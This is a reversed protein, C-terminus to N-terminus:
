GKQRAAAPGAPVAGSEEPERYWRALAGVIAWLFVFGGLVWMFLGGLELDSKPDIGWGDRILALVGLEDEPHQYAPYYGLPAFTLLIGLVTNALGATFLYFVAGPGTLRRMPTPALVPWWFITGTVLFSLHEAIHVTENALTLNYLVPLHWIWLTGIGLFWAVGSRGLLAEARRPAPRALLRATWEAPLGLLWLPPAALWLILHQVMHASFLYDDGLPDLPSTLAVFLAATGLTFYIAHRPTRPRVWVLYAALLLACGVVVSPHLEWGGFFFLERATV